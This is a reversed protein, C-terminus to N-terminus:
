SLGDMTEWAALRSRSGPRIVPSFSTTSRHACFVFSACSSSSTM